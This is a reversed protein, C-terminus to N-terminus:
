GRPGAEVFGLHQRKGGADDALEQVHVGHAAADVAGQLAGARVAPGIGRAGDHGGVGRRLRDGHMATEARRGDAGGAHHLARSHDTRVHRGHQREQGRIGRDGRCRGARQRPIQGLAAQVAHGDVAVRGGVVGEDDRRGPAGAVREHVVGCARGIGLQQVRERRQRHFEGLARRAVAFAGGLEDGHAHLLAAGGGLAQLDGVGDRVRRQHLRREEGAVRVPAAEAHRNAAGADGIQILALHAQKEVVHLDRSAAQDRRGVGFLGAGRHHGLVLEGHADQEVSAM